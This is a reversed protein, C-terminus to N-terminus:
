LRSVDEASSSFSSIGKGVIKIKRVKHKSTNSSEGVNMRSVSSFTVSESPSATSIQNTRSIMTPDYKERTSLIESRPEISPSPLGSSVSPSVDNRFTSSHRIIFTPSLSKTQSQSVRQRLTRPAYIDVEEPIKFVNIDGEEESVEIYGKWGKQLKGRPRKNDPRASSSLTFTSDHSLPQYTKSSTSSPISKLPFRIDPQNMTLSPPQLSHQQQSSVTPTTQSVRFSRKPRIPSLSCLPIDPSSPTESILRNLSKETGNPDNVTLHGSEGNNTTNSVSYREEFIDLLSGFSSERHFPERDHYDEQESIDDLDMDMSAEDEELLMKSECEDQTITVVNTGETEEIVMSQVEQNGPNLDDEQDCVDEMPKEVVYNESKASQDRSGLDVNIEAGKINTEFVVDDGRCEEVDMSDKRFTGSKRELSEVTTETSCQLNISEHLFTSPSSTILSEHLPTTPSSATLDIIKTSPTDQLDAPSSATAEVPDATGPCTGRASVCPKLSIDPCVTNRPIEIQSITGTDMLASERPSGQALTLSSSATLDIVESRAKGLVVGPTGPGSSLHTGIEGTQGPVVSAISKAPVASKTFGRVPEPRPFLLFSNRVTKRAFVPPRNHLEEPPPPADDRSQQPESVQTRSVSAERLPLPVPATILRPPFSQKGYNSKRKIFLSSEQENMRPRVAQAVKTEGPLSPRIRTTDPLDQIIKSLQDNQQSKEVSLSADRINKQIVEVPTHAIGEVDGLKVGGPMRAIDEVDTETEGVPAPAEAELAKPGSFCPQPPSRITSDVSLKREECGVEPTLDTDIRHFGIYLTGSPPTPLTLKPLQKIWKRPGIPPLKKQLGTDLGSQSAGAIITHPASKENIPKESKGSPVEPPVTDYEERGTNHPSCNGSSSVTSSVPRSPESMPEKRSDRELPLPHGSPPPLSNSRESPSATTPPTPLHNNEQPIFGKPGSMTREGKDEDNSYQENKERRSERERKKPNINDDSAGNGSISSTLPIKPRIRPDRSKDYNSVVRNVMALGVPAITHPISDTPNASKDIPGHTSTEIFNFPTCQKLTSTPENLHLMTATPSPASASASAGHTPSDISFNDSIRPILLSGTESSQIRYASNLRSFPLPVDSASTPIPQPILYHESRSPLSRDTIRWRGWSVEGGLYGYVACDYAWRTDLVLNHRWEHRVVKLLEEPDWAPLLVLIHSAHIDSNVIEAGLSRLMSVYYEWGDKGWGVRQGFPVYMRSGEFVRNCEKRMAMREAPTQLTDKLENSQTPITKLPRLYEKSSTGDIKTYRPHDMNVINIVPSNSRTSETMDLYPEPHRYVQKDIVSFHRRDSGRIDERNHFDHHHYGPTRGTMVNEGVPQRLTSRNKLEHTEYNKPTRGGVPTRSGAMHDGLKTHYRPGRPINMNGIPDLRTTQGIFRPTQRGDLEYRESYRSTDIEYLLHSGYAPTQGGNSGFRKTIAPTRGGDDHSVGYIPTQGGNRIKPTQGGNLDYRREPGSTHWGPRPTQGGDGYRPTQAGHGPTRGGDKLTHTGRSPTWGGYGAISGESVDHRTVRDEGDEFGRASQKYGPLDTDGIAYGQTYYGPDRDTSERRRGFTDNKIGQAYRQRWSSHQFRTAGGPPGLATLTPTIRLLILSAPVPVPLHLVVEAYLEQPVRRYTGTIRVTHRTPMATVTSRTLPNYM